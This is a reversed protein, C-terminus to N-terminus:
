DISVKVDEYFKYKNEIALDILDPKHLIMDRPIWGHSKNSIMRLCISHFHDAPIQIMMSPIMYFFSDSSDVPKFQLKHNHWLLLTRWNHEVSLMRELLQSRNLEECSMVQLYNGLDHAATDSLYYAYLYWAFAGNLSVNPLLDHIVKFLDRNKLGISMVIQQHNVWKFPRPPSVGRTLKELEQESLMYDPIVHYDDDRPKLGTEIMLMCAQHVSYKAAAILPWADGTIESLEFGRILAYKRLQENLVLYSSYDKNRHCRESYILDFVLRDISLLPFRTTFHTTTRTLAQILDIKYVNLQRVAEVGLQEIMDQVLSIDASFLADLFIAKASRNDM